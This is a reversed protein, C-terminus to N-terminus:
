GGARATRSVVIPAAGDLSDHVTLAAARSLEPGRAWVRLMSWPAPRVQAATLGLAKVSNEDFAVGYRSGTASILWMTERAPSDLASGTTTVFTSAGEALLVQDAQVGDRGGGVLGVLRAHQASTIPLGRGSVVAVRAQRESVGWRWSVCTVPQVSTDVMRVPSKPYYDVDLVHRVPIRALRDPSVHPAAALGYSNRQRLMAAVVPSIPQVGDGLVVYFRDASTAVDQSAVVAGIVVGPGLDVRAPAGAEPVAPVVLSGGAPLADFLARSMGAAVSSHLGLAATVASDALDVAMRLGGTVLYSHQRYSLLVGQDEALEGAEQGLALQGDIGTVTPAGGVTSSASDCVAWRAVDPSQVVPTEVPAGIIGVTPGKPWKAIDEPSVFTPADPSGAILQASVLNLAPHLRGDVSVYLTGLRRDAVIRSTGVLGAPRFWGFLFAGVVLVVGFVASLMLLTRQWRVPNVEMNVSHRLLAFALRRRVFFHGSVQTKSALKLPVVPM